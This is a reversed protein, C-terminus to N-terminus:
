LGVSLLGGSLLGAGTYRVKDQLFESLVECIHLLKYIGSRGIMVENFRCTMTFCTLLRSM